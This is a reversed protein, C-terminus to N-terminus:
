GVECLYLNRRKKIAQHGNIDNLHSFSLRQSIPDCELVKYSKINFASTIKEKVCTVDDKQSLFITKIRGDAQLKRRLNNKPM